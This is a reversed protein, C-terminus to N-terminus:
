KKDIEDFMEDNVYIPTKEGMYSGQVNFDFHEIAIEYSMKDTDMLIKICKNKSYVLKNIGNDYCVGIVADEFGDASLFEEDPYFEIINDLKSM